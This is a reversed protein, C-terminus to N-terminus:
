TLSPKPIGTAGARQVAAAINTSMMVLTPMVVSRNVWAARLCM